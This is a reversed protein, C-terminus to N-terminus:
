KNILDIVYDFTYDNDSFRYPVYYDPILIESTNSTDPRTLYLSSMAVVISTNPLKFKTSSTQRSTRNAPSRGIIKGIKNDQVLTPFLTGASVSNPSTLVYVNGNFKKDNSNVYYINKPDKLKDIINYDDNLSSIDILTDYNIKVKQLKEENKDGNIYKKYFDTYKVFRASTKIQQKDTLFSLLQYTYFMNGGSNNRVDIVLNEYGSEKLKTFFDEYFQTINETGPRVGRLRRSGKGNYAKKLENFAFPRFIFPVEDKIGQTWARKDMFQNIQLYALKHEAFFRYAYGSDTNVIIKSKYGNKHLQMANKILVYPVVFSKSTNLSDIVTIKMSDCSSKYGLGIAEIFGKRGFIVQSGAAHYEMEVSEQGLYPKIKKYFTDIPVDNISIVQKKILEAPYTQHVTTIMWKNNIYYLGVMFIKNDFNFLSPYELYSHNNKLTAIFKQFELLALTDNTNALNKIGRDLLIQWQSLSMLEQFNPYNEKVTTALILFDKQYKNLTKYYATKEIPHHIKKYASNQYKTIMKQSCQSFLCIAAISIFLISLNKKM